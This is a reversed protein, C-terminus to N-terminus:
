ATQAVPRRVKTALVFCLVAAIALGSLWGYVGWWPPLVNSFHLEIITVAVILVLVSGCLLLLSVALCYGWPSHEGSTRVHFFGPADSKCDVAPALHDNPVDPSAHPIDV